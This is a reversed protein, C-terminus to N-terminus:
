PPSSFLASRAGAADGIALEALRGALHRNVQFFSSGSVQFVDEGVRYDLPGAVSGPMEEALWDFFHKAVPRETELVNWQLQEEDTFLEMSQVFRPWRRDTVMM